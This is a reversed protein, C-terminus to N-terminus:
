GDTPGRYGMRWLARAIDSAVSEVWEEDKHWDAAHLMEHIIVDLKREGTLANYVRITKCRAAPPILCEGDNTPMDRRSVFLVEWMRRLIRIRM